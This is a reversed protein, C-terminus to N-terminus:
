RIRWQQLSRRDLRGVPSLSPLGVHGEGIDQHSSHHLWRHGPRRRLLAYKELMRPIFHTDNACALQPHSDLMRQLLTTGSRPCGGVFALPNISGNTRGSSTMSKRRPRQTIAPDPPCAWRPPYTLRSRPPSPRIVIVGPRNKDSWPPLRNTKTFYSIQHAQRWSAAAISICSRTPTGRLAVDHTVM